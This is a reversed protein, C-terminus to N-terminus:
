YLICPIGFTIIPYTGEDEILGASLSVNRQINETPILYVLFLFLCAIFASVFLTGLM